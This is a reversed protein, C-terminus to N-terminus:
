PSPSKKIDARVNEVFEKIISIHTVFPIGRYPAHLVYAGHTDLMGIVNGDETTVIAGDLEKWVIQYPTPELKMYWQGWKTFTDKVTTKIVVGNFTMENNDSDDIDDIVYGRIIVPADLLVGSNILTLADDINGLPMPDPLDPLGDTDLKVIALNTYSDTWAPRQEIPYLHNAIFLAKANGHTLFYANAIFLGYEKDVLAANIQIRGHHTTHVILLPAVYDPITQNYSVSPINIFMLILIM